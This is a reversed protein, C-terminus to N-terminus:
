AGSIKELRAIDLIHIQKRSISILGRKRLNSLSSTVTERYVGLQEALAEHTTDITDSNHERHMRLLLAALRSQVDGFMTQELREEMEHLRRALVEMLRIAVRPKALLMNEVDRRNMVCILSEELAEAFADYMGQGVLMMEGFISGAEITGIILKRGESSMRYVQVRGKKLIFLVEGTENPRYFIKGPPCTTMVAMRGIEKVEEEGLDRFIEVKSLYQLKTFPETPDDNRRLMPSPKQRRTM